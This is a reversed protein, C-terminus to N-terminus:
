RTRKNLTRVVPLEINTDVGGDIIYDHDNVFQRIYKTAVEYAAYDNKANTLFHLKFITKETAREVIFADVARTQRDIRNVDVRALVRGDLIEDIEKFLRM